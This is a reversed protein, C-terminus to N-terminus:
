NPDFVWPQNKAVSEVFEERTLRSEVDFVEDLFEEIEDEYMDRADKIQKDSFTNKGKLFMAEMNFMMVTATEFIQILTPEMDRDNCTIEEKGTDVICTYLEEATEDPNGDCM